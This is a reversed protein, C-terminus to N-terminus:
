RSWWPRDTDAPLPSLASRKLILVESPSLPLWHDVSVRYVPDFGSIESFSIIFQPRHESKPGSFVSALESNGSIETVPNTGSRRDRWYFYSNFEFGGDIETPSVAQDTMLYQGAEWRSRNWALFDHASAVGFGLYLLAVAAASLLRPRSNWLGGSAPTTAVAAIPLGVLAIELLVHREYFNAYSCLPIMYAAGVTLLFLSPWLARLSRTAYVQAISRHALSALSLILLSAGFAAAATIAVWFVPPAHPTQGYMLRPGTGLDVLQSGGIALTPIMSGTAWLASSVVIACVTAFAYALWTNRGFRGSAVRSPQLIVLLPLMWLGLHMLTCGFSRLVPRLAGLRLHMLDNFTLQLKDAYHYYAAPRGITAHLLRPYGAVVAAHILAPVVARVLWARGLGEKLALAVVLGIPIALALQRLLTAALVAIWGAWYIVAQGRGVGRLLLLVAVMVLSWFPVDTMFSESLSIFIPNIAYLAAIAMALRHSLGFERGALYCAALGISGIALTWIRLLTFSFGMIGAFPAALLTQTVLTVQQWDTFRLHGTEILWKVPLGYAWDDVLPFDGVPNIIIASIGWLAVIAGVALADQWGLSKHGASDVDGENRIEHPNPSSTGTPRGTM